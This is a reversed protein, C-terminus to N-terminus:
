QHCLYFFIDFNVFLLSDTLVYYANTKMHIIKKTSSHINWFTSREFIEKSTNLINGHWKVTLGISVFTKKYRFTQVFSNDRLMIRRLSLCLRTEHASLDYWNGVALKPHDMSTLYCKHYQIIKFIIFSANANLIMDQIENCLLLGFECHILRVHEEDYVILLSWM